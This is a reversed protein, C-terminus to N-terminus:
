IPMKLIDQYAQIVKDRVAVVTQLAAEANSVATVVETLNGSGAVAAASAAEGQQLTKITDSAASKVLDAFGTGSGTRPELGAGGINGAAAYAQVAQAPILAM